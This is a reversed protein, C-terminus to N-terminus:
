GAMATAQLRRQLDAIRRATEVLKPHAPTHRLALDAYEEQAQQLEANIQAMAGADGQLRRGLARAYQRLVARDDAAAALNAQPQWVLLVRQGPTLAVTETVITQILTPQGVYARITDDYKGGTLTNKALEVEVAPQPPEGRPRVEVVYGEKDALEIRRYLDPEVRELYYQPRDKPWLLETHGPPWSHRGGEITPQLLLAAAQQEDAFVRQITADSPGVVITLGAVTHHTTKEGGFGLTLTAAGAAPAAKAGTGYYSYAAGATGRFTGYYRAANWPEPTLTVRAGGPEKLLAARVKIAFEGAPVPTAPLVPPVTLVDPQAPVVRLMPVAPKAEARDMAVASGALALLASAAWLVSLSCRQKRLWTSASVTEDEEILEDRPRM